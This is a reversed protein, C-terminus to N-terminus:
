FPIEDDQVTVRKSPQESGEQKVYPKKITVSLYKDGKESKRTWGALDLIIDGGEKYKKNIYDVLDEGINITGTCNPQKGEAKRPLLFGSNPYSM